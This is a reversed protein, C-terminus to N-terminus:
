IRPPARTLGAAFAAGPLAAPADPHTLVGAVGFARRVHDDLHRRPDAHPVNQVATEDLLQTVPSDWSVAATRWVLGLLALGFQVHGLALLAALAAVAGLAAGSSRFTVASRVPTM